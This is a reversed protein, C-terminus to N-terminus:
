DNKIMEWAEPPEYDGNIRVPCVMGVSDSCKMVVPDADVGIEMTICANTSEPMAKLMTMLHHANFSVKATKEKQIAKKFIETHNCYMGASPVKRSITVDGDSVSTVGEKFSITIEKDKNVKKFPWVLLKGRDGACSFRTQTLKFGDLATACGNGAGDCEVIIYHLVPRVEIDGTCPACVKMIRNFDTGMMKITM